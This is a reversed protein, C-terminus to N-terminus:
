MQFFSSLYLICQYFPLLCVISVIYSSPCLVFVLLLFRSFWALSLFNYFAVVNMYIINVELVYLLRALFIVKFISFMYLSLLIEELHCCCGYYLLTALTEFLVVISWFVCFKTSAIAQSVDTFFSFSFLYHTTDM